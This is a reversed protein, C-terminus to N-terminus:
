RISEEGKYVLLFLTAQGVTRAHIQTRAATSLGERTLSPPVRLTVSSYNKICVLKKVKVFKKQTIHFM